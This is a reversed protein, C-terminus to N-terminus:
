VSLNVGNIGSGNGIQGATAAGFVTVTFTDGTAVPNASAVLTYAASTQGAATAALGAVAVIAVNKM